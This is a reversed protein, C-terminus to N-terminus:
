DTFIVDSFGAAYAIALLACRVSSDGCGGIHARKKLMKKTEAPTDANSPRGYPSGWLEVGASNIADAIAASTKDYGGGGAAGSGSTDGYTWDAPHKGVKIGQVWLSAYVTSANTSKGVYVRCDVIVRETKKDTLTYQKELIKAGSYNRANECQKTFTAKMYPQKTKM